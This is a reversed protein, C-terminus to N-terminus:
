AQAIRSPAPAPAPASRNFGKVILWVALVMEQVAIPANLVSNLTTFGFDQTLGSYITAVMSLVVAVIGWGSLWRPVLRARYMVYYYMGAGLLFTIYGVFGAGWDRAALLLAGSAQLSSPDISGGVASKQGLTLLVL